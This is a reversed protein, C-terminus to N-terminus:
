SDYLGTTEDEDMIEIILREQLAKMENKYVVIDEYRIRRHKGVKTFKIKGSELLKVVHPRSCGLM